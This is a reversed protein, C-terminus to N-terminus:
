CPTVGSDIQNAVLGDNIYHANLWGSNSVGANTPRSVDVVYYWLSDSYPGVADGFGYCQLQVQEGMYVGHGTVRDTDGTHPSSRFWVGDPPTESTNMVTFVPHAGGPAPQPQPNVTPGQPAGPTVPHGSVPLPPANGPITTGGDGPTRCASSGLITQVTAIPIKGPNNVYAWSTTLAAACRNSVKSVLYEAAKSDLYELGNLALCSVLDWPEEPTLCLAEKFDVLWSAPSFWSLHRVWVSRQGKHTGEPFWVNGVRHAVVDNSGPLLPATVLVRGHWPADIHIDVRGGGKASITAGGDHELTHPPVFLSWGNPTHLEGGYRASLHDHALVHPSDHGSAGQVLLALSLLCGMLTISGLRKRGM